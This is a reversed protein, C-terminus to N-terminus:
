VTGQRMLSEVYRIIEPDRFAKTQNWVARPIPLAFFDKADTDLGAPKPCIGQQDATLVTTMHLILLNVFTSEAETIPHKTLDPQAEVIRKLHPSEIMKLWLSRHQNTIAILTDFKRLRSNLTLSYSTFALGGVIGATQLLSFWNASLWAFLFGWLM